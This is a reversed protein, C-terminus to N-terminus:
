PQHKNANRLLEEAERLAKDEDFFPRQWERWAANFAICVGVILVVVFAIIAITTTM